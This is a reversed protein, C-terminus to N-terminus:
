SHFLTSIMFTFSCSSLRHVSESTLLKSTFTVLGNWKWKWKNTYFVTTLVWRYVHSCSVSVYYFQGIFLVCVKFKIFCYLM